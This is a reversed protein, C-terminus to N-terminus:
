NSTAVPNKRFFYFYIAVQHIRNKFEMRIREKELKDQKIIESIEKQLKFKELEAIKKQERHELIQTNLMDKM